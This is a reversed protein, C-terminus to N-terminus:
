ITSSLASKISHGHQLRRRKPLLNLAWLILMILLGCENGRPRLVMQAGEGVGDQAKPLLSTGPNARKLSVDDRQSGM